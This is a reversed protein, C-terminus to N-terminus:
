MLDTKEVVYRLDRLIEQLIDDDKVYKKYSELMKLSRSLVSSIIGMNYAVKITNIENSM